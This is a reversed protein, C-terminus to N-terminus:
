GERDNDGDLGGRIVTLRPKKQPLAKKSKSRAAPKPTADSRKKALFDRAFDHPSDLFSFPEASFDPEPLPPATLLRERRERIHTLADEVRMAHPSAALLRAVLLRVDDTM